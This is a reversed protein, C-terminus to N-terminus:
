QQHEKRPQIDSTFAQWGDDPGPDRETLEWGHADAIEKLKDFLDQEDQNM